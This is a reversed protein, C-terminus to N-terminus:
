QQARVYVTLPAGDSAEYGRIQAILSDTLAHGGALLLVDGRAVLDRALVMGPTLNATAMAVVVDPPAPRGIVTLFAKVYTPDFKSGAGETIHRAAETLGLRRITLAGSQVSDYEEVIALVRAGAPIDLGRLGDPYGRGDFREHHSRILRAASQLQDLAMLLGQGKAPHTEYEAREERNLAEFAKKFLVDPFGLMGIDHLLGAIMVDQCEPEPLSIQRALKLALDAVRRSHGAAGERMEVLGSFVRIATLFTSKLKEHSQGLEDMARRYEGTRQEVLAELMENFQKLEENQKRIVGELRTKEEGLKKREIAQRVQVRIDTDDWPKTIYRYIEGENVATLVASVDAYGTLLIRISEPWRQRVQGLFAAGDMEPMRMDSIVADIPERELLALGEAGSGATHVRYGDQRFLRRLANLINPEDDVCLLTASAASANPQPGNLM